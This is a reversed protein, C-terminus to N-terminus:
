KNIVPVPKGDDNIAVFTFIGETVKLRESSIKRLIWVEIKIQMSTNGVKILKGYCSVIDGVKIPNHFVMKDVAVTTVRKKAVKVAVIGAGMDMQSMVWGGFIDGNFNTYASMAVTRIVLDGDALDDRCSLDFKEVDM